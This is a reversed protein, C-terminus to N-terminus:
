IIIQHQDSDIYIFDFKSDIIKVLGRLTNAHGVVMVNRGMQLEVKIKDEWVPVTRVMCDLLSETLPIQDPSLDSYRRDRGPWYFDTPRLPPPRSKLSGRWKQVLEVGLTEATETKGLGTLAGYMRENLRWSKFVPLYLQNIEGLIIWTSRIARKLRSTFVVDIDYGGALLLRAAHESERVGQDSLNPDAWGTFTKNANWESEGHRVLILRGPQDQGSLNGTTAKSILEAVTNTAKISKKLPYFLIRQWWSRPKLGMMSAYGDENKEKERQLNRYQLAKRQKIQRRKTQSSYLFREYEDQTDYGSQMYGNLDRSTMPINGYDINYGGPGNRDGNSVGNNGIAKNSNNDSVLALTVARPIKTCPVHFGNIGDIKILVLIVCFFIAARM